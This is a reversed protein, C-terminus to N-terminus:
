VRRVEIGASQLREVLQREEDQQKTPYELVIFREPDLCECRCCVGNVDYDCKASCWGAGRKIPGMFRYVVENADQQLDTM